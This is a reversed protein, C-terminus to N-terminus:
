EPILKLSRLIRVFPQLCCYNSVNNIDCFIKGDKGIICIKNLVTTLKMDLLWDNTDISEIDKFERWKLSKSNILRSLIFGQRGITLKSGSLSSLVIDQGLMFLRAWKIAIRTTILLRIIKTVDDDFFNTKSLSYGKLKVTDKSDSIYIDTLGLHQITIKIDQVDDVIIKSKGEIIEKRSIITKSKFFLRGSTTEYLPDKNGFSRTIEEELQNLLLKYIQEAEEKTVTKSSQSDIWEGCHKCKVADDQIEEACYPCKKM